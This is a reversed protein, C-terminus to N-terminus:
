HENDIFEDEGEDYNDEEDEDEPYFFGQNPCSESAQLDEYVANEDFSFKLPYKIENLQLDIGIHRDHEDAEANSAPSLGGTIEDFAIICEEPKNMRALWAYADVGGFVGYGEYECEVISPKGSPQLLYVARPNLAYQRTSINPISENTDATLWSFFGM